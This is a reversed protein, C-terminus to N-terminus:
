HCCPAWLSLVYGFCYYYALDWIYGYAVWEDMTFADAWPTYARVNLEFAAMELPLTFTLM